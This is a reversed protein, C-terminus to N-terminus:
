NCGENGPILISHNEFVNGNSWYTEIRYCRKDIPVELKEGKKAHLQVSNRKEDHARHPNEYAEILYTGDHTPIFTYKISVIWSSDWDSETIVTATGQSSQITTTETTKDCGCLTFCIFLLATRMVFMLIKGRKKSKETIIKALKVM